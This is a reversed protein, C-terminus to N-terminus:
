IHILSLAAAAAEAARSFNAADYACSVNPCGVAVTLEFRRGGDSRARLGEAFSVIHSPTYDSQARARAWWGMCPDTRPRGHM